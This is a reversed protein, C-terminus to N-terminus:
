KRGSLIEKGKQVTTLGILFVKFSGAVSLIKLIISYPKM